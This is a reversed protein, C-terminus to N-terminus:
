RSGGIYEILWQYATQGTIKVITAIARSTITASTIASVDKKVEFPDEISKEKFQGSFTKGTSRDVVYDPNAANAGLGPTDKNELVKVGGITGEKQVGILITIPGGYSSGTAQVAVGIPNGQNTVLYEYQFTIEKDPSQFPPQIDTFGDAEPFLDKLAAELDAKQRQVIVKQTGSYVFALSVCAVTTYATLILGLKVMNNMKM